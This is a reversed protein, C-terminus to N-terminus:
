ILFVCIFTSITLVKIFLGNPPFADSLTTIVKNTEIEGAAKKITLWPLEIFRVLQNFSLQNIESQFDDTQFHINQTDCCNESILEVTFNYIDPLNSYSVECQHQTPSASNSIECCSTKETPEFLDISDLRGGCFHMAIAPQLSVVLLILLMNISIIKKMKCGQQGVITREDAVNRAFIIM